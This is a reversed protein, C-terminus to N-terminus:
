RYKRLWIDYSQGTVEKRGTVFISGDSGVAVGSGVESSNDASNYTKTWIKKGEPSYKRLWVNWSQGSKNKYGTAYVSGDAGVAVGYGEDSANDADNVTKTWLVKGGPSYKRLWINNNEGTVFTHGIVYVSGDPGVAVGYGIDHSNDTGNYKRTWIKKGGPSYKRLWINSDQDTVYASGAVYVSGDAGVAVGNGYDYNNGSGNYTKTWIKKGRPSYKRLWINQAQGLVYTSGTVYVNGDPGVAVGYGADEADAAGNYTKTWKVKGRPSYKRLWTNLGEGSVATYGVVYVSGNPGVAVGHGEDDSDAAGNYTKTWIKKGRPSYKRLWINSEQDTVTTYGSVYISGDPGIAVGNGYDNLNAAGNHTKTWRARVALASSSLGVM